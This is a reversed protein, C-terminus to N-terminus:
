KITKMNLKLKPRELLKRELLCIAIYLLVETVILVVWALDIGALIKQSYYLEYTSFVAYVMYLIAYLVNKYLKKFIILMLLLAIIVVLHLITIRGIIGNTDSDSLEIIAANEDPLYYNGTGRQVRIYKSVSDITYGDSLLLSNDNSIEVIDKAGNDIRTQAYDTNLVVIASDLHADIFSFVSWLMLLVLLVVVSVNM